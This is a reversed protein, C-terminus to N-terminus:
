TLGFKKVLEATPYALIAAYNLGPYASLDTTFAMDAKNMAWAHHKLVAPKTALPTVEAQQQAVEVWGDTPLGTGNWRWQGGPSLEGYYTGPVGPKAEVGNSM